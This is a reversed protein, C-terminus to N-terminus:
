WASNDVAPRAVHTVRQQASYYHTSGSAAAAGTVVVPGRAKLVGLDRGAVIVPAIVRFRDRSCPLSNWEPLWEPEDQHAYPCTRPAKHVGKADTYEHAWCEACPSNSFVGERGAVAYLWKCPQLIKKVTAHKRLGTTKIQVDRAYANQRAALFDAAQRAAEAAERAERAERQAPTEAALAAQTERWDFEGWTMGCGEIDYFMKALSVTLLPHQRCAGPCLEAPHWHEVISVGANLMDNLQFLAEYRSCEDHQVAVPAHPQTVAVPTMVDGEEDSDFASFRNM